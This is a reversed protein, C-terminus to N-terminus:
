FRFPIRCVTSIGDHGISLSTALNSNIKIWEPRDPYECVRISEDVAIAHFHAAIGCAVGHQWVIYLVGRFRQCKLSTPFISLIRTAMVFLWFLKSFNQKLIPGFKAQCVAANACRRVCHITWRTILIITIYM